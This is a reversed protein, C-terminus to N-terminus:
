KGKCLQLKRLHPGAVSKRCPATALCTAFDEPQEVWLKHPVGADALKAAQPAPAPARLPHHTHAFLM